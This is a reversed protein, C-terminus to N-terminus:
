RFKFPFIDDWLVRLLTYTHSSLQHFGDERRSPCLQRLQTQLIIRLKLTPRFVTWSGNLGNDRPKVFNRFPEIVSFLESM